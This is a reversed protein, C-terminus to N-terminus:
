DELGPQTSCPQHASEEAPNTFDMQIHAFDTLDVDGDADLDADACGPDIDLVAPGSACAQFHALDDADTDGDADFDSLALVTIAITTSVSTTDQADVQVAAEYNGPSIGTADVAVTLTTPTATSAPTVSVWPLDSVANFGDVQGCTSDLSATTDATQGQRLTMCAPANLLLTKPHVDLAYEFADDIVPLSGDGVVAFSEVRLVGSAFFRLRAFRFHANDRVATWSPPLPNIFQSFNNNKNSLKGGPSVKVWTVGDQADYCDLADSTHTNLTPMDALPYSREYAQDHSTLAVKVGHAEFLPGLQDRLANNAPHNSGDTFPSVHLFPVLWQQGALTAAALEQDIWDMAAQPLPDQNEVAYISVFHVNAVDFSYFRREDFGAPTAFRASWSAYNEQLKVEHNGYAPMMVSRTSILMMQNFWASITNELTGFRKDTDFYAYDGGLLVLLPDLASIESIIQATGAALGDLRGVIGTDAVYVVDVDAAGAPPATRFTRVDDWVSGSGKVRYEYETSPSLETLTVEHLTGAVGSPRQAGASVQWEEDGMARYSAESAIATDLTRWIITVTTAPDSVWSLHVQDAPSPRNATVQLTAGVYGDASAQVLATHTPLLLADGDIELTLTAPTQTSDPTVTLWSVSNSFTFTAPVADSTNLSVDANVVEGAQVNANVQSPSYVLHPPPPGNNSVTFSAIIQQDPENDLELLATITHPGDAISTTDFPSALTSSGGAFDYPPNNETRFPTGTATPNDLYFLVRDVGTDPATFAYINGQVTEGQLPTPSSRNPFTSLLLQYPAPQTTGQSFVQQPLLTSVLVLVVCILIFRRSM